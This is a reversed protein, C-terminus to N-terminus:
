ILAALKNSANLPDLKASSIKSNIVDLCALIHGDNRHNGADQIEGCLQGKHNAALMLCLSANQDGSSSSGSGNMVTDDTRGGQLLQGHERAAAKALAVASLMRCVSREM